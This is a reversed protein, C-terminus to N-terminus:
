TQRQEEKLEAATNWLMWELVLSDVTDTEFTGVGSESM